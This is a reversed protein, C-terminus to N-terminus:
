FTSLTVHQLYMCYVVVIFSEEIQDKYPFGKSVFFIMLTFLVLHCLFICLEIRSLLGLCSFMIFVIALM